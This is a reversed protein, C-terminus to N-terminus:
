DGSEVVTVYERVEYDSYLLDAFNARRVLEERAEEKTEFSDIYQPEDDFYVANRYLDFSKLKTSGDEKSDRYVEAHEYEGGTWEKAHSKNRPVGLYRYGCEGCKAVDEYPRVVVDASGCSNCEVPDPKSDTQAM